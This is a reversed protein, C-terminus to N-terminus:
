WVPCMNLNRYFFEMEEQSVIDWGHTLVPITKAEAIRMEQMKRTLYAAEAEAEAQLDALYVRMRSQQKASAPPMYPMGDRDYRAVDDEDEAREAARGLLNLEGNPRRFRGRRPATLYSERLILPPAFPREESISPKYIIEPVPISGMTQVIASDEDAHRVPKAQTPKKKPKLKLKYVPSRTAFPKRIVKRQTPRRTLNPLELDADSEIACGTDPAQDETPIPPQPPAKAIGKNIPTALALKPSSPSIQITPIPSFTEAAALDVRSGERSREKVISLPRSRRRKALPRRM